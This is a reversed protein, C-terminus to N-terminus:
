VGSSEFVGSGITYSGSEHAVRVLETGEIKGYTVEVSVGYFCNDAFWFLDISDEWSALKLAYVDGDHM